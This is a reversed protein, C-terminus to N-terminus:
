LDIRDKQSSLMTCSFLFCILCAIGIGSSSRFSNAPVSAPIINMANVSKKAPIIAGLPNQVSEINSATSANTTTGTILFFNTVGLDYSITQMNATVAQM